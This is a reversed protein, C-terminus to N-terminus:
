GIWGRAIARSSLWSAGAAVAAIFIPFPLTAGAGKITLLDTTLFLYGFQVIVAGLSLLFLPLAVRSRALLALACLLGSVVAVAYVPNYWGPLSAYLARDYESAPGMAEAGLRFQQLCAYCGAAGWVLLLIAVIRFWAPARTRLVAM